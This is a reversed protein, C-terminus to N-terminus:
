FTFLDIGGAVALEVGTVYRAELSALYCVAAAVDEPRGPERMATRLVM